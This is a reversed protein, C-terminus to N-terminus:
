PDAEYITRECDYHTVEAISNRTNYCMERFFDITEKIDSVISKQRVSKKKLWMM